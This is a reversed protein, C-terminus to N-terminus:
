TWGGTIGGLIKWFRKLNQVYKANIYKCIVGTKNKNMYLFIGHFLLGDKKNTYSYSSILLFYVIKTEPCIQM